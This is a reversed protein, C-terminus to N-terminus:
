FQSVDGNRPAQLGLIVASVHRASTCYPAPQTVDTVDPIVDLEWIWFPLTPYGLVLLSVATPFNISYEM